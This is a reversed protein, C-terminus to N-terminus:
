IIGRQIGAARCGLIWSPMYNGVSNAKLGSKTLEILRERAVKREVDHSLPGPIDEREAPKIEPAESLSCERM